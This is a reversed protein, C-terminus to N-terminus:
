GMVTSSIRTISRDGRRWGRGRYYVPLASRPDSAPRLMALLEGDPVVGVFM